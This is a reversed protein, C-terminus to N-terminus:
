FGHLFARGELKQVCRGTETTQLENSTRSKSWCRHSAWYRDICRRRRSNQSVLGSEHFDPEILFQPKFAPIGDQSETPLLSLSAEGKKATDNRQSVTTVDADRLNMPEQRADARTASVRRKFADEAIEQKTSCFTTGKESYIARGPIAAVRSVARGSEPEDGRQLGSEPCFPKGISVDVTVASCM